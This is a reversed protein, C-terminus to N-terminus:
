VARLLAATKHAPGDAPGQPRLNSFQVIGQRSQQHWKAMNQPGRSQNPAGPLTAPLGDMWERPEEAPIPPLRRWDWESETPASDLDANPQWIGTRTLPMWAPREAQIASLSATSATVWDDLNHHPAHPGDQTLLSGAIPRKQPPAEAASLRASDTDHPPQAPLEAGIPAHLRSWSPPPNTVQQGTGTTAM